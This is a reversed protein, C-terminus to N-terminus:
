SGRVPIPPKGDYRTVKLRFRSADSRPLGQDATTRLVAGTAPGLSVTNVRRGASDLYTGGLPVILMVASPNVVAVGQSFYRRWAAGAQFGVSPRGGLTLNPRVAKSTVGGVSLFQRGDTALLYSALAYQTTQSTVAASYEGTHFWCSKHRAACSSVEDQYSSWATGVANPKTSSSLYFQQELGDVPGLWRQWLGPFVTAYGVNFVAPVGAKRLGPGITKLASYTAAQVAADAPYKAAVGYASAVTLANDVEVGDWGHARVDGLVDQLWQRQYFANGYDTEWTQPYTKFELPRGTGAADLLWDRHHREVWCYGMGSSLYSSDTVGQACAGCAGGRTTCDDSRVGSMDKYVWVQVKPNARKLVPILRYDWSNLVVITNSRAVAAWQAKTTAQVQAEDLWESFSKVAAAQAPGDAAHSSLWGSNEIVVAAVTLLGLTLLIGAIRGGKRL